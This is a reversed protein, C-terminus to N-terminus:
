SNDLNLRIINVPCEAEARALSETDMPLADASHFVDGRRTTFLRAQGAEDMEFYHPAVETCVGCGICAAAKHLLKM